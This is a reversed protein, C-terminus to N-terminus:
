PLNALAFEGFHERAAVDYARAAEEETDFRGLFYHHGAIKLQAQWPKGHTSRTVGKFRNRGSRPKRTNGHNQSVSAIRLNARQNNLGNGDRHDVHPTRSQPLGMIQRHM